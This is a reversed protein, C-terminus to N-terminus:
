RSHSPSTHSTTNQRYAFARRRPNKTARRPHRRHNVRGGSRRSRADSFLVRAPPASRRFLPPPPINTKPLKGNAEFCRACLLPPKKKEDHDRERRVEGRRREDACCAKEARAPTREPLRLRVTRRGRAMGRSVGRRFNNWKHSSQGKSPRDARRGSTQFARALLFFGFSLRRYSLGTKARAGGGVDCTTPSKAFRTPPKATATTRQVRWRFPKKKQSGGGGLGRPL